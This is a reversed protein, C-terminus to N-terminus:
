WVTELGIKMGHKEAVPILQRLAAISREWAQRPSVEATVHGPVVLISKCGLDAGIEITRKTGEITAKRVVPDPHTFPKTWMDDFWVDTIPLTKESVKRIKAIDKASSERVSLVGPEEGFEVGEFGARKFLEFRREL